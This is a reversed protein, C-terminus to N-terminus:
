WGVYGHLLTLVQAKLFANFDQRVARSRLRHILGPELKIDVGEVRIHTMAEVHNVLDTSDRLNIGLAGSLRHWDEKSVYHGLQNEPEATAVVRVNREPQKM